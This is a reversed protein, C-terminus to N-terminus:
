RKVALWGRFNSWAWCCDSAFGADRLLDENMRATLPVLVGELSLRKRDIAEQTYGAGRKTGYYLDVEIEDLEATAGLVKEVLIFVGGPTLSEYANRLLRQRYEIPIFQLTLVSLCAAVAVGCPPYDERLDGGWVQVVGADIMGDFRNRLAELMPPSEEAAVYRARAGLVDIIPALGTGRSAGLDVVGLPQAPNRQIEAVQRVAAQTVFRRMDAYNPISRELMDDFAATVKEDFAWRGGEPALATDASDITGAERELAATASPGGRDLPAGGARRVEVEDSEAM